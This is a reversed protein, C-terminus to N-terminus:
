VDNHKVGNYCTESVDIWSEMLSDPIVETESGAVVWANFKRLCLRYRGDTTKILFFRRVPGKVKFGKCLGGSKICKQLYQRTVNMERAAEACGRYFSMRGTAEDMMAFFEGKIM